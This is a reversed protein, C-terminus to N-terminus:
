EKDPILRIVRLVTADGAPGAKPRVSLSAKVRVGQGSDVTAMLEQQKEETFGLGSLDVEHIQLADREPPATFFALHTPCPTTMCRVGSGKLVYIAPGEPLATTPTGTPAPAEATGGSSGEVPADAPAPQKQEPSEMPQATTGSPEATPPSSANRSCGALLSLLTATFLAHRLTM